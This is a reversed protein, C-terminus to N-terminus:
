GPTSRVRPGASRVARQVPRELLYWSVSAAFVIVPLTVVVLLPWNGVNLQWGIVDEQMVRLLFWHWLYIGYSVLGLYVLPRCRLVQRIRGRSQTGLVAPVVVLFGIATRALEIGIVTSGTEPELSRLGGVLPIGLFVALAGGWWIWAPDGWRRLRDSSREDWPGTSVVALLIGLAFAPLHQPLLTIWPATYGLAIAVIAVLGAAFLLAAGSLEVTRPRHRLTLRGIAAAYLPLFAYFTVEVVLSWAPPLGGVFPGFVGPHSTTAPAYAQTLTITRIVDGDGFYQIRPIVFTFFVLVLWYAPYLRAARRLAYSRVDVSKSAVLHSAAFPRYLLFGSAVFFVWVASNLNSLFMAGPTHFFSTLFVAHFVVISLAALARIGEFCPFRAGSEAAVTPEPTEFPDAVGWPRM